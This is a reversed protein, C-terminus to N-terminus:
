ESDINRIERTAIVCGAVLMAGIGYGAVGSIFEVVEREPRSDSCFQTNAYGAAVAGSGIVGGLLVNLRKM